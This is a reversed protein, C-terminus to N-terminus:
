PSQQRRALERVKRAAEYGLSESRESRSLQLFSVQSLGYTQSAAGSTAESIVQQAKTIAAIEEERSKKEAAYNEAKTMCEQKTEELTAKDEALDKSTVELNGEASAKKESAESVGDKAEGLDKNGFKISDELSQKVLEFNHLATTEDKRAESLQGQAKELLDELTDVISGSKSEYVAAAPAGLENEEEDDKEEGEGDNASRSRQVLATLRSADSSSISSAEVMTRLVSVIGDFGKGQLM